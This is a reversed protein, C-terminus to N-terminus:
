KTKFNYRLDKCVRPGGDTNINSGNVSAGIKEDVAELKTCVTPFKNEM